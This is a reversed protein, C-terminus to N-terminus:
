VTGIYIAVDALMFVLLTASWAMYSKAHTEGAAWWTLHRDWREVWGERPARSELPPPPPAAPDPNLITTASEAGDGTEAAPEAPPEVPAVETEAEEPEAVVAVIKLRRSPRTLAAARVDAYDGDATAALEADIAESYQVERAHARLVSWLAALNAAL